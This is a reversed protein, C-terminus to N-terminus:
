PTIRRDRGARQGTAATRPVISLRNTMWAASQAAADSRANPRTAAIMGFGTKPRWTGGSGNAIATQTAEAGSM